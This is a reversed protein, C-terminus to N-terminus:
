IAQWPLEQVHARTTMEKLLKKTFLVTFLM